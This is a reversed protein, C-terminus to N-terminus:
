GESSSRGAHGQAQQAAAYALQLFDAATLATFVSCAWRTPRPALAFGYALATAVWQGVCFPCTVLEGLAKRMGTGRVSEALEAEGSTGEFTTFPARLPSTVPDKALLRAIKHTAVSLLVLDAPALGEPLQRRSRRVLLAGTGTAASYVAMLAVFSGLPRDHGHSYRQQVSRAPAIEDSM